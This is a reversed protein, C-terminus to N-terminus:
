LYVQKALLAKHSSSKYASILIIDIIDEVIVFRRDFSIPSAAGVEWPAERSGASSTASSALSPKLHEMTDKDNIPHYKM